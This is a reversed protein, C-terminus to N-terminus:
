QSNGRADGFFESVKLAREMTTPASVIGQLVQSDIKEVLGGFQSFYSNIHERLFTWFHHSIWVSNPDLLFGAGPGFHYIISKLTMADATPLLSPILPSSQFLEKTNM